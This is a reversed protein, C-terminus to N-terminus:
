YYLSPIKTGMFRRSVRKKFNDYFVTFKMSITPGYIDWILIINGTMHIISVISFLHIIFFTTTTIIVAIIEYFLQFYQLTERDGNVVM